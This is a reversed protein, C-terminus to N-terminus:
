RCSGPLRLPQGLRYAPRRLGASRFLTVPSITQARTLPQHLFAFAIVLGVGAAVLLPQAHLTPALDVGVSAGVVPLAVLAAAGGILLGLGVGVAALAAVQTFFHIFVRTGNAGM